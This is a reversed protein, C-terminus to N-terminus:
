VLGKKQPYTVAYLTNDGFVSVGVPIVIANLAAIANQFTYITAWTTGDTTSEATFVGNRRWIAYWTNTVLAPTPATFGPDSIDLNAAGTRIYQDFVDSAANDTKTGLKFGKTGDYFFAIAFDTATGTNIPVKQAELGFGDFSGGGTTGSKFIHASTETLNTKTPLTMFAFGPILHPDSGAVNNTVGIGSFLAASNGAADRIKNTGGSFSITVDDGNAIPNTLTAYITSGVISISTIADAALNVLASLDGATLTSGTSIAESFLLDIVDPTANEVTASVLTPPTTDVVATANLVTVCYCYRGGLYYFLIQNIAGATNSYLNAGGREFASFDPVNTGDAILTLATHNGPEADTTVQTFTIAGTVTHNGLETFPQDFPIATVYSRITPLVKNAM